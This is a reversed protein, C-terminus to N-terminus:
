ARTWPYDGYLLEQADKEYWAKCQEVTIGRTEKLYELDIGTEPHRPDDLHEFRVMPDVVYGIKFGKEALKHQYETWGGIKWQGVDILGCERIASTKVAFGGGVHPQRLVGGEINKRAREPDWDEPMWHFGGAVALAEDADLKGILDELWGKHVVMDNDVKAVYKAQTGQFIRNMVPSIGENTANLMLVLRPDRLSKLYEVVEPNSGNDVVIINCSPHTTAELLRPLTRKTYDLRNYSLYVVDVDKPKGSWKNQFYWASQQVLAEWGEKTFTSHRRHEVTVNQAIALKFGKSRARLCFDDDEYGYWVFGEDLLGINKILDRKIYVCVFMLTKPEEVWVKTIDQQYVTQRPNGCDTNLPAIMGITPDSHAVQRLIDIWNDSMAEADDNMVIIDANSYRIGLNVSKAFVFPGQAQIFTVDSHADMLWHWGDFGGDCVISIAYPTNSERAKISRIAREALAPTKSPIVINVPKTKNVANQFYGINQKIRVEGPALEFAKKAAALGDAPRGLKDYVLCLKDWPEWTYASGNLFLLSNPMPTNAAVTYWHRAADWEQVDAHYDGLMIYGEARRYDDELARLMLDRSKKREDLMWHCVALNYQAQWREDGWSSLELYKEYWPVAEAWKGTDKYTNALYFVHRSNKPEREIDKLLGEIYLETRRAQVAEAEPTVKAEKKHYFKIDNNIVANEGTVNLTEHITNMWKIEPRNRFIRNVFHILVPNPNGDVFSYDRILILHTGEPTAELTAKLLPGQGPALWEDCDCMVIWDGTAERCAYNRALAFSFQPKGDSALIPDGEFTTDPNETSRIFGDFEVVKAGLEKAVEITRDVSGTDCVILEDYVGEFSAISRPLTNEENKAIYVLSIRM